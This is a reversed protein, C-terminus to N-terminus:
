VKPPRYSFSIRHVDYMLYVQRELSTPCREDTVVDVAVMKRGDLIYLGRWVGTVAGYTEIVEDRIMLSVEQGMLIKNLDRNSGDKRSRKKRVAPKSM